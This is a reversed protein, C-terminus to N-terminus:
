GNCEDGDQMEPAGGQGATDPDRGGYGATHLSEHDQYLRVGTIPKVMNARKGENTIHYTSGPPSVSSKLDRNSFLPIQRLETRVEGRTSAQPHWCGRHLEGRATASNWSTTLSPLHVKFIQYVEEILLGFTLKHNVNTGMGFASYLTTPVDDESCGSSM